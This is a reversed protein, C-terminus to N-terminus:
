RSGSRRRCTVHAIASNTTFDHLTWDSVGSREDFARKCKAFGSVPVKGNTTFVFGRDPHRGIVPVKDLVANAACSLPLLFDQKSKNRTSPMLWDSGTLEERRMRAAELAAHHRRPLRTRYGAKM